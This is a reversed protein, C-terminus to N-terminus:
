ILNRFKPFLFQLLLISRLFEFYPFKAEFFNGQNPDEWLEGIIATKAHFEIAASGNEKTPLPLSIHSLRTAENVHAIISGV